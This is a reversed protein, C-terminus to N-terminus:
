ADAKKGFYRMILVPAWIVVLSWFIIKIGHMGSAFSIPVNLLALLATLVIAPKFSLVGAHASDAAEESAVKGFWKRVEVEPVQQSMTWVIENSNSEASVKSFGKGFDTIHTKDGVSVRWNFAGAAYLVESDYDYLKSFKKGKIDVTESKSQGPWENLVAVKDWQETSEVLWLFGSDPNFLLYEVWTSSEGEDDSGCQLLGIAEYKVGDITGTDGLSLTTTIHSLEEAKQLVLAKDTSCDIEAHCSSCVLHFAMGAMYKVSAGCSPCDLAVTQGKFKGSTGVVADNDRLLQCKLQELTVAEGAFIQPIEGDSYDLSLFRGAYRFDAVKALWGQSVRFPLEGEWSICRATRVDSAFFTAGGYAFSTGPKLVEFRPTSAAAAPQPLTVVFQGSADSLWGSSGDDFLIHWENWFGDEYRLQIRGVVGFHNGQFIGSSTIQLPSYDELVESVKGIDKVSDADKLLTSRCYECVAM